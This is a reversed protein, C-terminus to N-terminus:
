DKKKFRGGTNAYAVAFVCLGVVLVTYVIVAWVAPVAILPTLAGIVLLLKGIFKCLANVDYEAKKEAPLTNFGAILNAGKGCLLVVGMIILVAATAGVTIWLVIM